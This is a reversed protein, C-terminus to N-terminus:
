EVVSVEGSCNEDASDTGCNSFHNRCEDGDSSQQSTDDDDRDGDIDCNRVFSKEIERIKGELEERQKKLKIYYFLYTFILQMLHVTHLYFQIEKTQTEERAYRLVILACM